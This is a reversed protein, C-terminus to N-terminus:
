SAYDNAIRLILVPVPSTHMVDDAVKGYNYKSEGSRGHSTMVILQTGIENAVDSINPGPDGERLTIRFSNQPLNQTLESMYSLEDGHPLARFDFNPRMYKSAPGEKPPRVYVIDMMANSDSKNHLIKGALEFAMEANQSGDLPVLINRVDLTNSQIVFDGRVLMVSAQTNQIVHEAVPGVLWRDSGSWGNSAIILLNVSNSSSFESIADAIYKKSPPRGPELTSIGIAETNWMLERKFTQLDTELDKILSGLYSEAADLDSQNTTEVVTILFIETTGKEPLVAELFRLSSESTLSGDLAVLIKTFAKIVM